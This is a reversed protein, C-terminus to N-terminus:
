SSGWRPRSRGNAIWSRCLSAVHTWVVASAIAASSAAASLAFGFTTRVVKEGSLRKGPIPRCCRRRRGPALRLFKRVIAASRNLPQGIVTFVKNSSPNMSSLSCLSLVEMSKILSTKWQNYSLSLAGHPWLWLQCNSHLHIQLRCVSSFRQNIKSNNVTYNTWVSWYGTIMEWFGDLIIEIENRFLM